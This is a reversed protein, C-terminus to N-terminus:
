LGLWLLQQTPTWIFKATNDVFGAQDLTSNVLHSAELPMPSVSWLVSDMMWTYLLKLVMSDSTHHVVKTFTYCAFSLGFLLVISVYYLNNWFFAWHKNTIDVYYYCSKLNFSFM